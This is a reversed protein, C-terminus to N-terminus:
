VSQYKQLFDSQALQLSSSILSRRQSEDDSRGMRRVGLYGAILIALFIVILWLSGPLARSPM